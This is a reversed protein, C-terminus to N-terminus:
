ILFDNLMALAIDKTNAQTIGMEQLKRLSEQSISGDLTMISTKNNNEVKKNEPINNSIYNHSVSEIKM